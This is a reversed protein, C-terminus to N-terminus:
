QVILEMFESLIMSTAGWIIDKEIRIYPTLVDYGHQLINEKYYNSPDM